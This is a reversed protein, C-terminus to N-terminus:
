GIVTSPAIAPQTKNLALLCTQKCTGENFAHADCSDVTLSRKASDWDMSIQAAEGSAPCRMSASTSPPKQSPIGFVSVALMSFFTTVIGIGVIDM